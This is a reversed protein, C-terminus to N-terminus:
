AAPPKSGLIIILLILKKLTQSYGWILIRHLPKKLNLSVRKEKNPKPNACHIIMAPSSGRRSLSCCPCPSRSSRPSPASVSRSRRRPGPRRWRWSWGWPGEPRGAQCRPTQAARVTLPFIMAAHHHHNHRLNITSSNIRLLILERLRWMSRTVSLSTVPSEPSSSHPRLEAGWLGPMEWLSVVSSDM